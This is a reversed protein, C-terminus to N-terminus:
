EEILDQCIITYSTTLLFKFNSILDFGLKDKDDIKPVMMAPM